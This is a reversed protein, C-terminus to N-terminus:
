ISKAIGALLVVFGALCVLARAILLGFAASAGSVHRHNKIESPTPTYDRSACSTLYDLTAQASRREAFSQLVDLMISLAGLASAAFLYGRHSVFAANQTAAFTFSYAVAALGMGVTRLSLSLTDNAKQRQDVLRNRSAILEDIHAPETM